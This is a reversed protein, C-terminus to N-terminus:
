PSCAGTAARSFSARSDRIRIRRARRFQEPRDPHRVVEDANRNFYGFSLSFTGDPNRYWGEFVPTVTQGSSKASALPLQARVPLSAGASLLALGVGVAFRRSGM